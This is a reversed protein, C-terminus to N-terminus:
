PLHGKTAFKEACERVFKNNGTLAEVLQRPDSKFNAELAKYWASIIQDKKIPVKYPTGQVGGLYTILNEVEKDSVRITLNLTRKSM